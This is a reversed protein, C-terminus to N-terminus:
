KLLNEKLLKPSALTIEHVDIGPGIQQKHLVYMVCLLLSCMVSMVIATNHSLFIFDEMETRQNKRFDADVSSNFTCNDLLLAFARVKVM